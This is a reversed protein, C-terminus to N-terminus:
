ERLDDGKLKVCRNKGEWHKGELIARAEKLYCKKHEAWFTEPAYGCNVKVEEKLSHGTILVRIWTKLRKDEVCYILEPEFDPTISDFYYKRCRKCLYKDLNDRNGIEYTSISRINTFKHSCVTGRKKYYEYTNRIHITRNIM